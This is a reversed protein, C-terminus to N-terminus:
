VNLQSDDKKVNIIGLKGLDVSEIGLPKATKWGGRTFDPVDVSNGRNLASRESLECVACSSALDYVDMDLPLGNQLCYCLRLDMLFDMGGHGGMKQALAGAVKWLPHMYEERLKATQEADMWGHAGDGPKEALAIRFPYDNLCGMTGSLLNIRSYPRASTVDHQVMITRGKVTRIVATSMDGCKPHLKAQWSDEGFKLKAFADMGIQASSVCTLYDFRDGRNVDMAQMIPLLGHTPYPNGYHKVNWNLRWYNQYGGKKPDLYNLERLDHIYAGEGHVLEGLKGQRVLNLTLMEVEGYCCNELQMCHRGTREATEVLAWCEDLYMAAPVEIAAHKGHEMAYLAIPTHLAWPTAIYVLDLDSECLAKYGDEGSYSRAKPKGSDALWKQQVDVRDQFLDCLAAVEVGPIAALRHVAGPGRMGLGVVGVRVKKIPAVAFGSMSGTSCSKAATACGSLAAVAGMWMTGKLFERRNTNM